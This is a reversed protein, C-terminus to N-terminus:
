SALDLILAVVFLLTFVQIVMQSIKIMELEFQTKRINLHYFAVLEGNGDVCIYEDEDEYLVEKFVLNFDGDIFIRDNKKQPLVRATLPGSYNGAWYYGMLDNDFKCPLVLQDGNFPEVIERVVQRHLRPLLEGFIFEGGPIREVYSAKGFQDRSRFVRTAHEKSDCHIHCSRFQYLIPHRGIEKRHRLPVLSSACPVSHFLRLHEWGSSLNSLTVPMVHCEVTRVMEGIVAGCRNCRSWPTAKAFTRVGDFEAEMAIEEKTKTINEKDLFDQIKSERNTYVDLFTLSEINGSTAIESMGPTRACKYFGIDTRSANDIRLEYGDGQHYKARSALGFAKKFFKNNLLESIGKMKFNQTIETWMHDGNALFFWDNKWQNLNTNAGLVFTRIHTLFNHFIKEGHSKGPKCVQRIFLEDEPYLCRYCNLLAAAGQRVLLVEATVLLKELLDEAEPSFNCVVDAWTQAPEDSLEVEYYGALREAAPWSEVSPEGLLDFILKLEDEEDDGDFLVDGGSVIEAFICGASWIDIAPGYLHAGWLLEPSRYWLTVVQHSYGRIPLKFATALGFDALKLVGNVDLLINRPTLDRHIVDNSHCYALGLFMQKTLSRAKEEAIPQEGLSDFYQRLDQVCFEFVLVFREKTRVVEHLKVVNEHNLERLLSIERLAVRTEDKRAAVCKEYDDFDKAMQWNVPSDQFEDAEDDAKPIENEKEEEAADNKPKAFNIPPERQWSPVSSTTTMAPVRVPAFQNHSLLLSRITSIGNEVREMENQRVGVMLLAKSVEDQHMALTQTQQSVSDIVFKMSNQLENIQQQLQRVEETAPDPINFRPLVYTRLLHYGAYAATSLIAASEVFQRVKNPQYPPPYQQMAINQAPLVPLRQKAEEIEQETVGKGLLFGRQEEWPSDRVKPTSLFKYAAEVM